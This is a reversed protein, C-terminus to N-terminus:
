DRLIKWPSSSEESVKPKASKSSSSSKRTRETSARKRSKSDRSSAAKAPPSVKRRKQAVVKKKPKAKAKSQTSTPKSEAKSQVATTSKAVVKAGSEPSADKPMGGQSAAAAELAGGARAGSEVAPGPREAAEVALAVTADRSAIGPRHTATGPAKEGQANAGTAAVPPPGESRAELWLRNAAVGLALTTVLLGALTRWGWRRKQSGALDLPEPGLPVATLWPSTEGVTLLPAGDVGDGSHSRTARVEAPDLVRDATLTPPHRELEGQVVESDRTAAVVLQKLQSSSESEGAQASLEAHSAMFPALAARFEEASQFREDPDKALAIAILEYIETPLGEVVEFFYPAEQEVQARLVDFEGTAEFPLSASLLMWLLIGLSYLDSRADPEEGRIQEPSMFEPTGVLQGVKTLRESGLVRSIGFDMIKLVGDSDILLNSGKIDRHVIGQRHIYAMGELAQDFISLTQELTLPGLRRVLAALSVGDVHEMVMVPADGDWELGYLTAINPHNLTALTQAEGRFREMLQPRAALEPRLRKIAVTRGLVTDVALHVEGAGGEGLKSEIRYQGITAGRM